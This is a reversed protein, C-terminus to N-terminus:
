VKRRTLAFPVEIKQLNWQCGIRPVCENTHSSATLIAPQSGSKWEARGTPPSRTGAVIRLPLQSHLQKRFFLGISEAEVDQIRGLQNRFLHHRDGRDASHNEISIRVIEERLGLLNREAGCVHDRSDIEAVIRQQGAAVMGIDVRLYRTEPASIEVLQRDIGRQCGYVVVLTVTNM